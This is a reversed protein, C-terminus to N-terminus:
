SNFLDKNFKKDDTNLLNELTTQNDYKHQHQFWKLIKKQIV